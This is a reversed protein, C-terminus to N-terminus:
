GIVKFRPRNYKTPEPKEKDGGRVNLRMFVAERSVNVDEIDGSVERPKLVSVAVAESLFDRGGVTVRAPGIMVQGTKKPRLSWTYTRFNESTMRGNVISTRMQQSSSVGLNQWNRLDLRPENKVQDLDVRVQVELTDDSTM